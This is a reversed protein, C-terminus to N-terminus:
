GKIGALKIGETFFRQCFVFVVILPLMVIVSAAMLLNWNIGFLSQFTALGVPLTQMEISNNIILPWMFDRWSGMFTFIVLTALAPGSLPIIVHRFVGFKSCGDIVAAEDLERPVTLFFQRLMFTGYASFLGPAILAFYSDGGIVNGLWTHGFYFEYPIMDGLVRLVAFVPIMTVVGPVMMTALYGLFLTDRGPFRLRAFAFAALSSTLVQGFTITLTVLLSNFLMRGFPIATVADLYNSWIFKEPIWRMTPTFVEGAEKFSTSLMWVFPLVMTTGLAALVAYIAIKAAPRLSRGSEGRVKVRKAIVAAGQM